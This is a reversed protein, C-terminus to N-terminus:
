RSRAGALKFASGQRTDDTVWDPFKQKLADLATKVDAADLKQPVLTTQDAM